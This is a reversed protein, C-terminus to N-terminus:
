NVKSSVSSELIAEVKNILEMPSFPKVLYDDAGAKLGKSIDEKQGRATLLIISCKEGDPSDKIIRTAELGDLRGPMMVDMIILEPKERDFVQIADEGNESELIQCGPDQLTEVVLERIAPNDEVILIKKM